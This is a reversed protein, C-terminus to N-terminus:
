GYKPHFPLWRWTGGEAHCGRHKTDGPLQLGKHDRVQESVQRGERNQGVSRFKPGNICCLGARVALPWFPLFFRCQMSVRPSLPLRTPSETRGPRPWSSALGLGSWSGAAHLGKHRWPTFAAAWLAQNWTLPGLDSNLFSVEPPPCPPFFILCLPKLLLRLPPFLSPFPLFSCLLLLFLTAPPPCLLLLLHISPPPAPPGPWGLALEIPELFPGQLLWAQILGQNSPQVEPVEPLQTLILHSIMPRIGTWSCPSLTWM